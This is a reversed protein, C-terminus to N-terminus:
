QKQKGISKDIQQTAEIFKILEGRGFYNQIANKILKSMNESMM